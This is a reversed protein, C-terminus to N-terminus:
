AHHARSPQESTASTGTIDLQDWQSEFFATKRNWLWSSLQWVSIFTSPYRKAHLFPPGTSFLASSGSAHDIPHEEALPPGAHLASRLVPGRVHHHSLIFVTM